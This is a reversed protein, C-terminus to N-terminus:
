AAKKVAFLQIAEVYSSAFPINKQKFRKDAHAYTSQIFAPIQM